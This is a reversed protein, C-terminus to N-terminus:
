LTCLSAPPECVTGNCNGSYCEADEDCSITNEGKLHCLGDGLCAFNPACRQARTMPLCAIGEEPLDVCTGATMTVANCYQGAPCQSPQARFCAGGAAAVPACLLGTPTNTCALGRDCMAGPPNCTQGDQLAYVVLNSKCTDNVNVGANPTCTNGRKCLPTSDLGCDGGPNTPTVCQRVGSVTACVTGSSCQESATCPDGANLSARCTGPCQANAACFSSSGSCDESIVCDAGLAVKGKIAQECVAPRRLIQVSCGQTTISAICAAMHSRDFVIRGAAISDALASLERASFVNGTVDACTEGNLSDTLLQAGDCAELAACVANALLQPVDSVDGMFGADFGADVGTGADNDGSDSVGADGNGSDPFLSGDFGGVKLEADCGLALVCILFTSLRAITNM